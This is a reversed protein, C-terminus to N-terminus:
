GSAILAVVGPSDRLAQKLDGAELLRFASNIATSTVGHGDRLVEGAHVAVRVRIGCEAAHAQNHGHLAVSLEQPFHSVLLNKPVEPPVL